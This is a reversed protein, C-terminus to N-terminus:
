FKANVDLQIDDNKFSPGTIATASFWKAEFWIGHALAVSGTLTFGQLNTGVLEGGFDADTFGDVVADSELHRYGVGINWDGGKDLVIDGLKLNVFWGKNGGIYPAAGGSAPAAGLNNIAVAGISQRNFALNQVYEGILAVKFPEFATFDIEQTVAIDHFASALGFYQWQDITGNNNTPGPVIDRIEMYTNGNQAFSPRSADTSGADSTTLPTYPTSLEGQVNVYYYMAAATKFSFNDGLKWTSGVQAAGLWKDYSSFKAPQNTAFNLDTNFVPFIGAVLFPKISDVVQGDFHVKMPLKLLAGDFGLDSAWILNTAFFPNEFRGLMVTYNATPDGPSQYKLFARDLWVSYKAFDGGQANGAAGFTQNETVPNNDNGTALRLGVTFGDKMDIAAGMRARMRERERNQNVNFQPSYVNGTVDFPGGTNIANFNPFSGNAQNTSHNILEEFRFRIDGYLDFKSVWEPVQAGWGEKHAQAMVEEKVEETIQERVVDPVYAVRVTGDSPPADSAGAPQAAIGDDGRSPARPAPAPSAEQTGGGSLVGSVSPTAQSGQDGSDPGASEAVPVPRGAPEPAPAPAAAAPAPSTEGLVDSVRVPQGPSATNPGPAVPSAAAAQNPAAQSSPAPMASAAPAPSPTDAPAAAGPTADSGTLAAKVALSGGQTLVAQLVAAAARARAVAAQAKAAALQAEAIQVQAEAADANAQAILQAADQKSLAGKEVLRNILSVTPSQQSSAPAGQPAAPDDARVTAASLCAAVFLLLLRRHNNSLRKPM